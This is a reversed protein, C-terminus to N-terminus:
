PFVTGTMAEGGGHGFAMNREVETGKREEGM